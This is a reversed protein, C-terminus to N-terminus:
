YKQYYLPPLRAPYGDNPPVGIKEGEFISFNRIITNGMNAKIWKDKAIKQNYQKMVPYENTYTKPPTFKPM